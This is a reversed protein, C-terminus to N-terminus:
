EASRSVDSHDGVRRDPRPEPSGAEHPHAACPEARDARLPVAARRDPPQDAGGGGPRRGGARSAHAPQRARRRAAGSAAVNPGRPWASRRRRRSVGREPNPGARPGGSSGAADPRHGARVPVPRRLRGGREGRLLAVGGGPGGRRRRFGWIRRPRDWTCSSRGTTPWRGAGDAVHRGRFPELRRRLVAVDDSANLAIATGIGLAFCSTTAHPIPQWTAPPGLRRYVTAADELRGGHALFFAAAVSFIVGEIPFDLGDGDEHGPGYDLLGALDAAEGTHLGILSLLATRNIQASERGTASPPLAAVARDALLRADAFRGVAQALVARAQLLHWRAVPTRLEAACHALPELERSVAALDGAPVGCRAAVPAGVHPLFPGAMQGVAHMRDALTAREELGEPGSVVLQRARLAAAVSAPDAARDAMALAHASARGAAELDGLYMCATSLNASVRARPASAAPPLLALAEECSARVSVEAQLDSEGGEMALAAEALLDPRHLGRALAAAERCAPLRGALEGRRRCRVRSVLLLRCRRGDDIDGCGGGARSPLAPRGGRLRPRRMAEEAARTIWDAGREREGSVAAAAWHRALDSLHPELRGAHMREVADAASRHLRVREAAALGAEVADRVLDHM